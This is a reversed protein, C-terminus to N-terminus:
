NCVFSQWPDFRFQMIRLFFSFDLFFNKITQSKFSLKAKNARKVLRFESILAQRFPIYEFSLTANFNALKGHIEKDQSKATM